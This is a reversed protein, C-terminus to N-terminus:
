RSKNLTVGDTPCATCPAVARGDVQVDSVDGQNPLTAQYPGCTRKRCSVSHKWFLWAWTFRAAYYVSEAIRNGPCGNGGIIDVHSHTMWCFHHTLM